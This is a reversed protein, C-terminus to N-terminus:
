TRVKENIEKKEVYRFWVIAYGAWIALAATGLAVIETSAPDPSDSYITGDNVFLDGIPAPVSVRKDKLEPNTNHKMTFGFKDFVSASKPDVGIANNADALADTGWVSAVDVKYISANSAAQLADLLAEIQAQTAAVPVSYAESWIDGSNDIWHVSITKITAATTVDPATRTGPM